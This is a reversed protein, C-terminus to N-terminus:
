SLRCQLSDPEFGTKQGIVIYPDSPSFQSVSQRDVSMIGELSTNSTEHIKSKQSEM